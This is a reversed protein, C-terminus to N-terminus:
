DEDFRLTVRNKETRKSLHIELIGSKYRAEISDSSYNFPIRVTRKFRGFYRENVILSEKPCPYPCPIRGELTLHLSDLTIQVDESSRLGPLEATIVGEEETEYIDISPVRKPSSPDLKKWVEKVKEPIHVWDPSEKSKSM